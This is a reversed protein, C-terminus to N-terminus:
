RGSLADVVRLRMGRRAPLAGVLVGVLVALALGRVWTAEGVPSMFITSGMMSRVWYVTASAGILGLASGLVLLLVSEGLVLGLVSTPSFGLAKLTALESIRERVAQATTNGTLLVLTFFVAGMISGVILGVDALQRLSEIYFAYETETKTEHDSNASLSDIAQSVRDIQNIDPVEIAFWDVTGRGEQRAENVYDWRAYLINENSQMSSDTIRYIGVLDFTWVTSGDKKEFATKLPIKDGLKWHFRKAYSESAIVGTRTKLFVEREAPSIQWEPYIDLFSDAHGEVPIFNNPDQYTGGLASAYEIKGVGPVARIREYLSQPLPLGWNIKSFTLLRDKGAQGTNSFASRVSDLLGFLLFAMLISLLTFLTRGKRRSLASWVLHFYKM